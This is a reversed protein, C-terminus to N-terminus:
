PALIKGSSASATTSMGCKANRAVRVALQEWGSMQVAVRTLCLCFLTSHSGALLRVSVEVVSIRTREVSKPLYAPATPRTGFTVSRDERVVDLGLTSLQSLSFLLPLRALSGAQYRLSSRSPTLEGGGCQDGM